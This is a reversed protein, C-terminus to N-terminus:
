EVLKKTTRMSHSAAGALLEECAHDLSPRDGSISARLKKFTCGLEVLVAPYPHKMSKALDPSFELIEISRYNEERRIKVKWTTWSDIVAFRTEYKPALNELRPDDLISKIRLFDERALSKSRTSTDKDTVAAKSSEWEAM